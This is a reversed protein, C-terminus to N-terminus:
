ATKYSIELIKTYSNFARLWNFSHCLRVEEQTREMEEEEEQLLYLNNSM